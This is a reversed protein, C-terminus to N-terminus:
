TKRKKAPLRLYDRNWTHYPIPQKPFRFTGILDTWFFM